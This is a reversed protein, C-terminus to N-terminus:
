GVNIKATLDDSDVQNWAPKVSLYYTKDVEVGSYLNVAYPNDSVADITTTSSYTTNNADVIKASPDSWMDKESVLILAEYENPYAKTDKINVARQWTQSSTVSITGSQGYRSAFAAFSFVLSLIVTISIIKITKSIKM